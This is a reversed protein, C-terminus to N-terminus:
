PTSTSQDRYGLLIGVGVDYFGIYKNMLGHLNLLWKLRKKLHLIM